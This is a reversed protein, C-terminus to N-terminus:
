ATRWTRKAHAQSIPTAAACATKTRRAPARPPLAPRFRPPRAPPPYPQTIKPRPQRIPLAKVRVRARGWRPPPSIIPAEGLRLLKHRRRRIPPRRQSPPSIRRAPGEGPHRSSEILAKAVAMVPVSLFALGLITSGMYMSVVAGLMAVATTAFGLYSGRKQDAHTMARIERAEGIQAKQLEEAMKILRDFTGPLIKEYREVADPPPYPGQWSQM